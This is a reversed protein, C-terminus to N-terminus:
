IHFMFRNTTILFVNIIPKISNFIYNFGKMIITEFNFEYINVKLCRMVNICILKYSTTKLNVSQIELKFYPKCGKLYQCIFITAYYYIEVLM